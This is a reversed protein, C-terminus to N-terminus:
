SADGIAVLPYMRVNQVRHDAASEVAAGVFERPREDSREGREGRSAVHALEGHSGVQVAIAGAIPGSECGRPEERLVDVIWDQGVEQASLTGNALNKARIRPNLRISRLASSSVFPLAM